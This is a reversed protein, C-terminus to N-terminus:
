KRNKLMQTNLKPGGPKGCKVRKLTRGKRQLMSKTCIAIAAGEATSGRRVKVTRKVSKICSCFKKAQNEKM